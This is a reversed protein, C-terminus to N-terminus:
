MCWCTCAPLHRCLNVLMHKGQLVSWLAARRLSCITVFPSLSVACRIPRGEPLQQPAASRAGALTGRKLAALEDEVDGGELARFKSELGDSTGLQSPPACPM